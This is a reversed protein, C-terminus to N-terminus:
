SGGSTVVPPNNAPQVQPQPAQQVSPAGGGSGSDDQTGTSTAPTAPHATRHGPAAVAVGASAIGIAAVGTFVMATNLSRLRLLAADRQARAHASM